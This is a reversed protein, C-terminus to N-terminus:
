EFEKFFDEEISEKNACYYIHDKLIPQKEEKLLERQHVPSFPIHEGKTYDIIVPLGYSIDGKFKNYFWRGLGAVEILAEGIYGVIIRDFREQSM